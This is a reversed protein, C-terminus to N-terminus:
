EEEDMRPAGILSEPDDGDAAVVAYGVSGHDTDMPTGRRGHVRPCASGPWQSLSRSPGPGAHPPRSPRVRGAM